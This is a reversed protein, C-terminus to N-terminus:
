KKSIPLRNPWDDGCSRVVFDFHLETGFPELPLATNNFKIECSQNLFALLDHIGSENAEQVIKSIEELQESTLSALIKNRNKNEATDPYSGKKIWDSKVSHKISVVEDIFRKYFELKDTM